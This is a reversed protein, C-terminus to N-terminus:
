INNDPDQNKNQEDDTFEHPGHYYYHGDPALKGTDIYKTISYSSAHDPNYKSSAENISTYAKILNFDKDYRFIMTKVKEEISSEDGKLCWIFGHYFRFKIFDAHPINLKLDLAADKISPYEKILNGELSYKLIPKQRKIVTLPNLANLKASSESLNEFRCDERVTNKHDIFVNSELLKGSFTEFIIRHLNYPKGEYNFKWYGDETLRGVFLNGNKKNRMIGNSNCDFIEPFRLCPKWESPDPDGYKSIYYEVNLNIIKWYYNNYKTNSKISDKICKVEYHSFDKYHYRGLEELSDNYKIFVIYNLKDSKTKNRNNGSHDTWRLNSLSFDGRLRNIHDVIKKNEPNSIFTKALLIHVKIVVKRKVGVGTLHVIPYGNVTCYEKRISGSSVTKIHGLKNIEYMGEFDEGLCDLPVFETDPINKYKDVLQQEMNSMIKLNVRDGQIIFGM